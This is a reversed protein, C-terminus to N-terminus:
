VLHHFCTGHWRLDPAPNAPCRTAIDRRRRHLAILIWHATIQWVAHFKLPANIIVSFLGNGIQRQLNKTGETAGEIVM